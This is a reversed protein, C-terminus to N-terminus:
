AFEDHSKWSADVQGLFGAHVGRHGFGQAWPLWRALHGLGDDVASVWLHLDRRRSADPARRGAARDHRARAQTLSSADIATTV